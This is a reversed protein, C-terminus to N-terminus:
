DDAGLCSGTDCCQTGGSCSTGSFTCGTRPWFRGAWPTPVCIPRTDGGALEWGNGDAPLSACTGTMTYCFQDSSCGGNTTCATSTPSVKGGVPVFTCQKTIAADCYQNVACDASAACTPSGSLTRTRNGVAGVWLSTGCSNLFTLTRAGPPCTAARVISTGLSALGVAVYWSWGRVPARPRHRLASRHNAIVVDVRSAGPGGGIRARDGGDAALRGPGAAARGRGSACARAARHAPGRDRAEGQAPERRADAARGGAGAPASADAGAGPRAVGGGEERGGRGGRG